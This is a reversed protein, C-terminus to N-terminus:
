SVDKTLRHQKINRLM